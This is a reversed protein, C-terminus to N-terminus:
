HGPEQVPPFFAKRCPDCHAAPEQWDATGLDTQVSRPEPDRAQTPRGCSPCHQLPPPVPQRAQRQLAQQLVESGLYNSLQVILQEMDAFSTGWAPGDPGYLHHLLNKAAAQLVPRLHAPIDVTPAKTAM